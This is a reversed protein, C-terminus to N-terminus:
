GKTPGKLVREQVGRTASTQSAASKTSATSKVNTNPAAGTRAGKSGAMMMAATKQMGRM